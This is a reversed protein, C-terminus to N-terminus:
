LGNSYYILQHNIFVEENSSTSHMINNVNNIVLIEDEDAGLKKDEAENHEKKVAKKYSDFGRHKVLKLALSLYAHRLDTYNNRDIQFEFEITNEVLSTTPYIQQEYSSLVDDLVLVKNGVSGSVAM